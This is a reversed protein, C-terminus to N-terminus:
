LIAFGEYGRPFTKNKVCDLISGDEAHGVFFVRVVIPRRKSRVGGGLWYLVVVVRLTSAACLNIEM